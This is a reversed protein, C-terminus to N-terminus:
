CGRNYTTSDTSPEEEAIVEVGNEWELGGPRLASSAMVSHPRTSNLVAEDLSLEKTM